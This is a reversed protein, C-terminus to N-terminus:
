VKNRKVWVPYKLYLVKKCKISYLMKGQESKASISPFILQSVLM